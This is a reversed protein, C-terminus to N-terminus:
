FFATDLSYIDPKTVVCIALDEYWGVDFSLNTKFYRECTTCYYFGIMTAYTFAVTLFNTIFVVKYLDKLKIFWYVWFVTPGKFVNQCYENINNTFHVKYVARYVEGTFM